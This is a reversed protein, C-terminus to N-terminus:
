FKVKTKKAKAGWDVNGHQDRPYNEDIKEFMVKDKGDEHKIVKTARHWKGDVFKMRLTQMAFGNRATIFINFKLENRGAINVQSGLMVALSPSINGISIIDRTTVLNEFTINKIQRFEDLDVVSIQVDYLPYEGQHVVVWKGSKNNKDIATINLYCFSAGGTMSETLEMKATLIARDSRLQLLYAGVASMVAGALVLFFPVNLNM